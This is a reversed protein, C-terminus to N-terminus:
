ASFTASTRILPRERGLQLGGVRNVRDVLAEEVGAAVLFDLTQQDYPNIQREAM